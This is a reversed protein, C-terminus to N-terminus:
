EEFRKKEMIEGVVEGMEENKLGGGEVEENMLGGGEVEENKM